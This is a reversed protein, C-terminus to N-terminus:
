IELGRKELGVAILKLGENHKLYCIEREEIIVKGRWNM